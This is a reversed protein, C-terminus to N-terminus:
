LCAAALETLTSVKLKTNKTLQIKSYPSAVVIVDNKVDNARAEVYKAMKKVIEPRLQAFVVAGEGCTYSEENNTGFMFDIPEDILDTTWGAPSQAKLQKLLERPFKLNDNYNKLFDSELYYLEGAKKAFKIKLSAVFESVHMVKASVKLGFEKADNVLADYVATGSVVVTKAKSANLAEVFETMKAKADEVYGLVKLAKGCNGGTATAYKVKAKKAIKDFAKKESDLADTDADIYYLVDGKGSITLTADEKALKKALKVVDDPALGAEVIDQRAALVIDNEKWKNVCHFFGAASMDSSYITDIFDPNALKSNDLMVGWVMSSRVRPTDSERFTVNAVGSLHRCMFCFRCKKVDEQFKDINM